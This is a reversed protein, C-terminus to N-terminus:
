PYVVTPEALEADVNQITENNGAASPLGSQLNIAGNLSIPIFGLLTLVCGNAGPAAFANDVYKVNQLYTIETVEDFVLAEAEHGSIPTNPPPPSTTGTTLELVMPSSNTGVYCKNGLVPNILHVKIPLTLGQFGHIVPQGALETAAYVNLADGTLFTTLWELGTLGIIGGPVKQKVPPMGGKSNYVFNELEVNTGGSLKIPKEITVTKSGMKFTGSKVTNLMCIEVGAGLVPETKPDPCGAFQGYGEKPTGAQAAPAVMAVLLAATMAAGLLKGLHTSKM